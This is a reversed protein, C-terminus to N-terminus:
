VATKSALAARVNVPAPRVVWPASRSAKRLRWAAAALQLAPSAARVLVLVLVAAALQMAAALAVALLRAARVPKPVARVAIVKAVPALRRLAVAALKPNPALATVV